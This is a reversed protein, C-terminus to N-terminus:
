LKNYLRGQFIDLSAKKNDSISRLFSEWLRSSTM